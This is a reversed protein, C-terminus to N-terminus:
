DRDVPPPCGEGEVCLGDSKFHTYMEVVQNWASGGLSSQIYHEVDARITDAIFAAAFMGQDLGIIKNAINGESDVADFWGAFSVIDPHAQEIEKLRQVADRENIMAYLASAHPTGVMEQDSNENRFYNESMAEVGYEDYRSDITSSSSLFPITHPETFEIQVTAMAHFLEPEAVLRMEDFWVQPLMGQFYTGNWTLMPHITEGQKTQYEASFASMTTFVEMPIPTESKITLIHAWLPALRSENAKRDVWYSALGPEGSDTEHRWAAKLLNRTNNPQDYLAVWAEATDRVLKDARKALDALRPDPHQWYAGAVAALSSTLNAGDVASAIAKDQNISLNGDADIPYMWYFLGKWKPAQEIKSMVDLLRLRAQISGAREMETLVNLYLGLTTSNVVRRQFIVEDNEVRIFDFPLLADTDVGVGDQFYQLNVHLQKEFGYPYRDQRFEIETIPGDIPTEIGPYDTDPQSVSNSSNCGLM